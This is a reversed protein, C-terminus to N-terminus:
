AQHRSHSPHSRRPLGLCSLFNLRYPWDHELVSTQHPLAATKIRFACPSSWHGADVEWGCGCVKGTAFAQCIMMPSRQPRLPSKHHISWLIAMNCFEMSALSGFGDWWLCPMTPPFGPLKWYESLPRNSRGIAKVSRGFETTAQLIRTASGQRTTEQSLQKVQTRSLPAFTTHLLSSTPGMIM